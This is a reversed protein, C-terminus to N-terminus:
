AAQCHCAVRLPGHCAGWVLFPAQWHPGALSESAGFPAPVCSSPSAFHFLGREKLNSFRSRRPGGPWGSDSSRRPPDGAAKPSIVGCSHLLLWRAPTHQAAESEATGSLERRRGSRGVSSLERRRGSRGVSSTPGSHCRAPQGAPRGAPPPPKLLSPLALTLGGLSGFVQMKLKSSLRHATALPGRSRPHPSVCCRPM